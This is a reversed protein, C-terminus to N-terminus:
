LFPTDPDLGLLVRGQVELNTSPLLLAHLALGQADRHFRQIPVSRQIATAGSASFLIEVAEKALQVAFATRGRVDAKEQLTPQEDADARRQLLAVTENLLANAAAIKNAATAVQIQTLPHRSQDDWNTYTIGRGPIRECFLEYAGQAIGLYAAACEAMVYTFLGYRRGPTVEATRGPTTNFIADGYGVVRHEPVFVNEATTTCSGTAAAASTHWDDTITYASMPVIAIAEDHGGDPREVLAASMNWDAGRCGSNFRWSGNLLYGGETPTLTGTPTFGGSIRVSGQAFVEEQAQDGYLTALGASSVWVMATWATSGCGRGIERLVKVQDDLSLDLGGFRRPTAIRFVGAKDLLAISDEAVWRRQEAEEGAARLAPVLERVAELVPEVQSDTM